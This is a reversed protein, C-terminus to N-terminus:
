FDTTNVGMQRQARELAELLQQAPTPKAIFDDMGAAICAARDVETVAATLAIIYPQKIEGGLSRIAQTAQLGDMEPMQIDMLVIDYDGSTRIANVAEVGNVVVDASYGGRELIRVIVKQNVLNDEVVLINVPAGAARVNADDNRTPSEPTHVATPTSAFELLANRVAHVTVPKPLLTTAPRLALEQRVTRAQPPAFVFWSPLIGSRQPLAAALWSLATYDLLAIHRAPLTAAVQAAEGASTATHVQMGWRTLHKALVSCFAASPHAVLAVLGPAGPLAGAAAPAELARVRVRCWFTSGAGPQSEVAIDGGMVQALRKSIALGLGAGGFRRTHSTDAQAFQEFIIAQKEPPIGIGTDRVTIVLTLEDGALPEASLSIQIEGQETFKVANGVLNLLIQRLRQEDTEILSPVGEDLDCILELGKRNIEVSMLDVIQALLRQPECPGAGLVFSSSELKSFDLIDSIVTLLTESSNRITHVFEQQERNLLTTELLSAMGIVANLPTRIEHSMNALFDSKARAALEARERALKLEQESQKRQTIVSITLLIQEPAGAANQTLVTERSHLWEWCGDARQLRFEIGNPSANTALQQWYATVGPLDDPHVLTLLTDLTTFKEVAHDLLMERNVYIWQQSPLDLICILDPSREALGRFRRENQEREVIERQLRRNAEDLEATRELVRVELQVKIAQLEAQSRMLDRNLAAAQDATQQARAANEDADHLASLLLAANLAMAILVIILTDLGTTPSLNVQAAGFTELLYIVIVTAASLGVIHYTARRGLLLATLPVLVFFGATNPARITKFIFFAPLASGAYVIAILGLAALRVRGTRALFFLGACLMLGILDLIILTRAGEPSSSSFPISLAMLALAAIVLALFLHLWYATRNAAGRVGQQPSSLKRILRRM